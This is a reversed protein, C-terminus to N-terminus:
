RRWPTRHTCVMQLPVRQASLQSAQEKWGGPGDAEKGLAQAKSGMNKTWCLEAALKTVLYMTWHRQLDMTKSADMSDAILRYRQFRMRGAELPVPYVYLTYANQRDLYYQTPRGQTAKDTKRQWDDRSLPMLVTEGTTDGDMLFMGVSFMDLTEPPVAYSGQGVVAEIDYFDILNPINGSSQLAKAILELFEMGLGLQAAWAPGSLPHQENMLGAKIWALRM